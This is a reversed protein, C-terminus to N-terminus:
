KRGYAAFLAAAEECARRALSGDAAEALVRVVSETGSPRIYFRVAAGYAGQVRRLRALFRKDHQWSRHDRMAVSLQAQPYEPIREAFEGLSVGHKLLLRSVLLAVLVGDGSCTKDWCIIHGSQEGGLLIGRRRMARLVETDGVTTRYSRIGQERLYREVGSNTMETFVLRGARRYPQHLLVLLALLKDGDVTRGRDDVALVRDADGDFAFGWSAGSSRVERRLRALDTSGCRVNIRKGDPEACVPVVSFGCATFAPVAVATAAGHALDLAVRVGRGRAGNVKCLHRIYAPVVDVAAARGTAEGKSRGAQPRDILEEIAAVVTGGIKLGDSRFVKIGNHDVPNHSATIMVGGLVNFRNVMLGLLPTPVVGLSAVNAGAAALGHAVAEALMPSSLRTDRGLLVCPHPLASEVRPFYPLKRGRYARRLVAGIAAGARYAFSETLDTGAIGRIGDTGFYRGVTNM